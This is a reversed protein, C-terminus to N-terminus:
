VPTFAVGNKPVNPGSFIVRVPMGIHLGEINDTVINTLMTVGEQLRVYAVVYMPQARRMVSFSYIEGQGSCTMWETDGFCDPCLARPYYHPQGCELCRRIKLTRSQLGQFFPAIEPNSEYDIMLTTMNM